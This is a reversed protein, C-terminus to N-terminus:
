EFLGLKLELGRALIIDGQASCLARTIDKWEHYEITRHCEDDFKGGYTDYTGKFRQILYYPQNNNFDRVPVVNVSLEKANPVIRYGIERVLVAKGYYRGSAKARMFDRLAESLILYPKIDNTWFNDEGGETPATIFYRAQPKQTQRTM